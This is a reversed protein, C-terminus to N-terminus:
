EEDMDIKISRDEKNRNMPPTFQDNWYDCYANDSCVIACDLKKCHGITPNYYKKCTDCCIKKSKNKM